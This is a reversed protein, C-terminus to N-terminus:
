AFIGQLFWQDGQRLERFIWYCAGQTDEAIFYDRAVDTGDWWGGEIRERASRLRLVGALWPKGARVRLPVPEQLLWVPRRLGSSLSVSEALEPECWRWAREPRHDDRVALGRVAKDGLRARLRELLVAHAQQPAQAAGFLDPACGAHAQIDRATLRLALVPESLRVYDLRTQLLAFIHEADRTPEAFNLTVSTRREERHCLHLQLANVGAVRARLWGSLEQVLRQVGFVLGTMNEVEAPLLLESSFRVPSVFPPRPDPQRELARDLTHLLQPGLRRALGDRPLRLLDGLRRLGMGQLTAQERAALELVSLPLQSLQRVLGAHSLLNVEVGARALWTAALPTPALALRPDFGLTQLGNLVAQRLPEIGGFLRLSGRAELLVADPAVLVILSSFQGCWGAIAHLLRQEAAIDRARVQLGDYLAHAAAVSMGPRIGAACAASTAAMVTPTRTHGDHILLAGSDPQARTYVDLPLQPLCVCFWLRDSLAEASAPLDQILRPGTQAASVGTPFKEFLM